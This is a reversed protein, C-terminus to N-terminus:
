ITAPENKVGLKNLAIILRERRSEAELWAMPLKNLWESFQMRNLRRKAVLGLKYRALCDLRHYEIVQKESESLNALNYDM